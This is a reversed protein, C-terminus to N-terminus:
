RAGSQANILESTASDAPLARAKYLTVEDNIDEYVLEVPMGVKIYAPDPPVGELLTLVHLGEALTILATVYPAEIWARRRYNITYSYLHGKGSSTRWEVDSHWCFPCISRPFHYPKDCRRCHRYIFEHRRCAQWFEETEPTPVPLPREMVM